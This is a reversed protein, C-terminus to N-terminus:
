ALNDEYNSFTEGLKGVPKGCDDLSTRGKGVPKGWAKETKGCSKGLNDGAESREAPPKEM